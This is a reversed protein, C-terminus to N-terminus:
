VGGCVAVENLDTAAVGAKAPAVKWAEGAGEANGMGLKRALGDVSEGFRLALDSTRCSGEGGVSLSTGEGEGKWGDEEKGAARSDGSSKM